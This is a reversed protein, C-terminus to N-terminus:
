TRIIASTSTGPALGLLADDLFSQGGDRDLRQQTKSIVDTSAPRQGGPPDVSTGRRHSLDDLVSSPGRFQPRYRRDRSVRQTRVASNDLGPLRGEGHGNGRHAPHRAAGAQHQFGGDPQASPQDGCLRWAGLAGLNAPLRRESPRLLVVGFVVLASALAGVLIRTSKLPPAVPKPVNTMHPVTAGIRFPKTSPRTPGIHHSLFHGGPWRQCTFLAVHAVGHPHDTEVNITM